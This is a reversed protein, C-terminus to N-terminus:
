PSGDQQPSTNLWDSRNLRSERRQTGLKDWVRLSRSVLEFGGDFWVLVMWVHEKQVEFCSAKKFHSHVRHKGKESQDLLKLEFM